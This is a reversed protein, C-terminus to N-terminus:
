QLYEKFYFKAKDKCITLTEGKALALAPRLFPQAHQRVTGFEVHPAYDLPTGIFVEDETDPAQITMEADSYGEGDEAIGSGYEAPNGPETGEGTGAQTTISAALYGSRKAALLKAEGEVVLGIGFATQGSVKKGQIKINQGEWKLGVSTKIM